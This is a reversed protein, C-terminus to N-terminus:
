DIPILILGAQIEYTFHLTRVEPESGRVMVIGPSNGHVKPLTHIHRPIFNGAQRRSIRNQRLPDRTPALSAWSKCASTSRPGSSESVLLPVMPVPSLGVLRSSLRVSTIENPKKWRSPEWRNFKRAM